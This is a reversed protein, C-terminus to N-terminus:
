VGSPLCAYLAERLLKERPDDWILVGLRNPAYAFGVEAVPDAYGFCGGSGPAGFAAGGSGFRLSPSPKWFGLSYSTPIGLVADEAGGDPAVPAAALAAFTATDLSLEAAGCAFSGYLKAVSRVQGIGNAAPIEVRRYPPQGIAEPRELRPNWLVEQVFSGRRLAERLVTLQAPTASRVQAMTQHVAIRQAPVSPPTGIYFELGLPRAIEEQFFAGLTRARPDVRRILEREYLGLTIAHYGHRSGPKWLPRQRALVDALRDPDDLLEADLHVDVTPVGAQHSLLQRVTVDHKGYQAFEPWYEAVPAEYDLLGRARALAVTMASVGKTASFMLVLTDREWPLQRERDRFGGWLDVVKHGRHYATCAAGIEDRRDFNRQLESRVPEFGPAVVGKIETSYM